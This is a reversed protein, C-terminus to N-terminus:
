GVIFLVLFGIMVLELAVVILLVMWNPFFSPDIQDLKRHMKRYGWTSTIVILAGVLGMIFALTDVL